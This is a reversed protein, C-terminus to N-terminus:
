WPYVPDVDTESFNPSLNKRGGNDSLFHQFCKLHLLKVNTLYSSKGFIEQFIGSIVTVLQTTYFIRQLLDETSITLVDDSDEKDLKLM